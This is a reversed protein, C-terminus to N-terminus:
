SDYFHVTAKIREAYQYIEDLNNILVREESKDENILGLYLQAKNFRLRCIPQRNNDDLLIGCYSKVDRMVVRNPDVEDRLISKVIYFGEMEEETTEIQPKEEIIEETSEESEDQEIPKQEEALASELRRNIRENIYQSIAKKTIDAFQERVQQTLRGPYVQSAFFRVFDESPDTMEQTVLQRIARTYKLDSASSIINDLDFSSKTFKKLENIHRENFNLIDFVLFPKDDMKNKEDLDSYFEYKIGNTLLGFRAGTASFYRYLQSKHTKALSTTYHKCEILIIPKGEFLIAYDVKEGKKVGIDANLEPTVEAPNFVDYGLASIFPMILANKTAEETQIHDLQKPIRNPLQQIRDIFDM